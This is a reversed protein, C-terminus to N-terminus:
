EGRLSDDVHSWTDTDTAGRVLSKTLEVVEVYRNGVMNQWKQERWAIEQPDLLQLGPAVDIRSEFTGAETAGTILASGLPIEGGAATV